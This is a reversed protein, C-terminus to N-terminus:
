ILRPMVVYLVNNEVPSEIVVGSREGNFAMSIIDSSLNSLVDLIYTVNFGVNFSGGQYELRLNEVATEQEANKASLELNNDSFIFGIAKNQENALISIRKIAAVLEQRNFSIKQNFSSPTLQRCDPFQGSVLKCTLSMDQLLLKFNTDSFCLSVSCDSKSLIKLMELVCKKPLIAEMSLSPDIDLKINAFSIRYGDTSTLSLESGSVKFLLGNLYHRVDNVAISFKTYNIVDVVEKAQLKLQLSPKWQEISPFTDAPLTKLTFNSDGSSIFAKKDAYSFSIMADAEFSKVIDLIKKAPITISAAASVPTSLSVRSVLELELDTAIVYLYNDYVKFLFNSLIALNHRKEVVGYVDQLTKLFSKKQLDFKM